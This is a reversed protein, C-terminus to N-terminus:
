KGILIFPAWYFPSALEPKAILNLKSQRLSASFTNKELTSFFDIMLTSTGEDSVPWLSVLLDKAGAFMFGRSLGILGEGESVTGLGTQCASLAVLEANLSLNYIESAFLINDETDGAQALILGSYNPHDENVFGHTAFHIFKYDQLNSEKIGKENAKEFKLVTCKKNKDQFYKNVADVETLTGPLPNIYTGDALFARKKKGFIDTKFVQSRTQAVENKDSFVPAIGIYDKPAEAKIEDGTIRLSAAYLYNIEYAKILYDLTSFNDSEKPATRVMSEFPFFFLPGDPVITIKKLQLKTLVSDVGAFINKYVIYANSSITKLNNDNIGERYANINVDTGTANKLEVLDIRKGSIIVVGSFETSYIFNLIAENDGLKQQITRTDSRQSNKLQAYKPYKSNILKNISDQKTYLADLKSLLLKGDAETVDNSNLSASLQEIQEISKREAVILDQPVGSLKKCNIDKLAKKIMVSKCDETIEAAQLVYSDDKTTAYLGNCVKVALVNLKYSDNRTGMKLSLEDTASTEKSLKKLENYQALAEKLQGPINKQLSARATIKFAIKKSRLYEDMFKTQAADNKNCSLAKNVSILAKDYLKQEYQVIALNNCTKCNFYSNKQNENLAIVESFIKEAEAYKAQGMAVIGELNRISVLGAADNKKKYISRAKEYYIGASDFQEYVLYVNGIKTLVGAQKIDDAKYLEFLSQYVQRAAAANIKASAMAINEIANIHKHHGYGYKKEYLTLAQSYAYIAKVNNNQYYFINGANLQSEPDVIGLQKKVAASKNNYELALSYDGFSTYAVTLNQYCTALRRNPEKPPGYWAAADKLNEIGSSINQESLIQATGYNLKLDAIDAKLDLKETYSKQLEYFQMAKTWDEMESYLSAMNFISLQTQENNLGFLKKRMEFSELAAIEAASFDGKSQYALSLNGLSYAIESSAPGTMKKRIALSKSHYLIANSYDKKLDYANGKTNYVDAMTLDEGANLGVLAKEMITSYYIASDANGLDIHIKSLLLVAELCQNNSIEFLSKRISFGKHLFKLAIDYNRQNVEVIAKNMYCLALKPDNKPLNKEIVPFTENLVNNAKDFLQYTSLINALGCQCTAYSGWENNKKLEAGAETLKEVCEKGRDQQYLQIGEQLLQMGKSQSFSLKFCFFSTLIFFASRKM